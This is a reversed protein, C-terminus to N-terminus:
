RGFSRPWPAQGTIRQDPLGAATAAIDFQSTTGPTLYESHGFSGRLPAGDPAATGRDSLVVIGDLQAPVTGFAGLGAVVDGPAAEVVATHGAPVHLAALTTIGLGPSGFVVADDVATTHQLAYGTTTSGYSHGLATLHPRRGPRADTIGDDFRALDIGGARADIASAVSRDASMLTDWQPADYGLWAVAAVSETGRGRLLLQHQANQRLSRMDSVSDAISGAVTTTFGPTFVAVHDATDVDGVAIAARPAAHGDVDLLLLQRDPDAVTRTVAVLADHEEHRRAVDARVAALEAVRHPEQRGLLGGGMATRLRDTAAALASDVRALEGPLRARNAADRVRGPVGDLNGILEPRTRLLDEQEAASLNQWWAAVGAPLAAVPPVAASRPMPDSGGPGVRRGVARDLDRVLAADVSDARDLVSQLLTGLSRRDALRSTREAVTRAVDPDVDAFGGEVDVAFGHAAAFADVRALESRLAVVADVAVAVAPRAATTAAVLGGLASEIRHHATRAADGAVGQWADLRAARLDHDLDLLRDRAVGIARVVGELATPDWRRLDAPTVM